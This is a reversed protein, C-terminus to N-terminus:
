ERRMSRWEALMTKREERSALRWREKREEEEKKAQEMSEMAISRNCLYCNEYLQQKDSDMEAHCQRCHRHNYITLGRRYCPVRGLRRALYCCYCRSYPGYFQQGCDQCHVHANDNCTQCQRCYYSGHTKADTHEGCKDCQWCGVSAPKRCIDCKPDPCDKNHIVTCPLTERSLVALDTADSFHFELTPLGAAIVPPEPAHTDVVEILVRPTKDAMCTIDPQINWDSLRHEVLVHTLVGGGLLNQTHLGCDPSTCRWQIMLRDNGAMADAIRQHLLLKATKHLLGECAPNWVEHAFHHTKVSGNNKAILPADCSPCRVGCDKGNPVDDVHVLRGVSDLGYPILLTTSSTMM